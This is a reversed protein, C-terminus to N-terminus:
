LDFCVAMLGFDAVVFLIDGKEFDVVRRRRSAREGNETASSSSNVCGNRGIGSGTPHPTSIGHGDQSAVGLSQLFRTLRLQPVKLRVSFCCNTSAMVVM